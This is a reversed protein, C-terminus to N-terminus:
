HDTWLLRERPECTDLDPNQVTFLVKVTTLCFSLKFVPSLQQLDATIAPSSTYLTIKLNPFERQTCDTM